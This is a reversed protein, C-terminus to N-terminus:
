ALSLVVRIVNYIVAVRCVSIAIIKTLMLGKPEEKSRGFISQCILAAAALTCSGCIVAVTAPIPFIIKAAYRLILALVLIAAAAGWLIRVTYKRAKKTNM